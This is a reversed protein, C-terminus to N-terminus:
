IEEDEEVEGTDDEDTPIPTEELDKEEDM